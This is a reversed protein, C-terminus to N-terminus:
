PGCTKCPRYGAQIADARAAFGIMSRPSLKAAFRCDRRHFIREKGQALDLDSRAAAIYPAADAAPGSLSEVQRPWAIWAAAGSVMAVALVILIIRPKPV